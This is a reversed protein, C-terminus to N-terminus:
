DLINCVARTEVAVKAGQNDDVEKAIVVARLAVEDVNKSSTM